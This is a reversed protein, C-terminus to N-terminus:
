GSQLLYHVAALKCVSDVFTKRSVTYYSHLIDHIDQVVYEDNSMSHTTQTADALRVVMGHSGNNFAHNKVNASANGQRSKQLNDNFYHNLTMPTESSEIELLFQTNSIAKQYRRILEDTLKSILADRVDRDSCISIFASDIFKHVMVINDSVFGMSIGTWKSCQKKMCTALLSPNLTGLEFGRNSEFVALLWDKMDGHRPYRLSEQAHLTDVLDDLDDERRNEFFGLASETDGDDIFALPISSSGNSDWSMFTYTQGYKAMEDSFIKMRSM